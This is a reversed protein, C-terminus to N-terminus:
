RRGLRKPKVERTHRHAWHLRYAFYNAIRYIRHSSSVRRVERGTRTDLQCERVFRGAFDHKLLPAMRKDKTRRSEAVMAREVQRKAEVPNKSWGREPEHQKLSGWVRDILKVFKPFKMGETM